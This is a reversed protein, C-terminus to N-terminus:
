LGFGFVKESAGLTRRTRQVEQVMVLESRRRPGLGNREKRGMRAIDPAGSCGTEVGVWIRSTLVARRLAM